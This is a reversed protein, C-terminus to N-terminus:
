GAAGPANAAVCDGNIEHCLIRHHITGTRQRRQAHTQPGRGSSDSRGEQRWPPRAGLVYRAAVGGSDGGAVSHCENISRLAQDDDDGDCFPRLVSHFLALRSHVQSRATRGSRCAACCRSRTWTCHRTSSGPGQWGGGQACLFQSDSAGCEGWTYVRGPRRHVATVIMDSDRALGGVKSALAVSPLVGEVAHPPSSQDLRRHMCADPQVLGWSSLTLTLSLLGVCSQLCGAQPHSPSCWRCCAKWSRSWTRSSRHLMNNANGFQGRPITAFVDIVNNLRM